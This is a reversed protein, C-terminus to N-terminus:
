YYLNLIHIFLQLKKGWLLDYVYSQFSQRLCAVSMCVYMFVRAGAPM